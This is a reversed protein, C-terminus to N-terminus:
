YNICNQSNLKKASHSGKLLDVIDKDWNPDFIDKVDSILILWDSYFM